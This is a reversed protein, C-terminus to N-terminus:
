DGTLLVRVAEAGMGTWGTCMVHLVEEDQPPM